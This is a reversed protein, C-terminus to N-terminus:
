VSHHHLFPCLCGSVQPSHFSKTVLLACSYSVTFLLLFFILGCKFTLPGAFNEMFSFQNGTSYLITELTLPDRSHGLLRGSSSPKWWLLLWSLEATVIQGSSWTADLFTGVVIFVIGTNEELM